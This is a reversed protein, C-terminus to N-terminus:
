ILFALACKIDDYSVRGGLAQHIGKLQYGDDVKYKQYVGEVADMVIKKPKYQSFNVEPNDKKLKILHGAITGKTMGRAKAIAELSHGQKFYMLSIAYTSEKEKKTNKRLRKKEALKAKNKEIEKPDTLGGCAKIFSYADDDLTKKSFRKEAELSLEQFRQDAKYALGDVKLAMENFGLLELNELSKLRSLAVYGQGLEFTKSLDISAAELTMGQSKHITIAWALRLPVQNISALTKGTDDIVAWTEPKAEIIKDDTTRVKPFGAESYDIIEGLSGNVYAREPNNKVFMVKAGIKLQLEEMALTSSKLAEVLKENGKGSARFKKQAGGLKELEIANMQDVDENHTYLRTPSINFKTQNNVAQQLLQLSEESLSRSRIQNLLKNLPNDSQRYQETLYCVQFNADLWSKAMFAFKDKSKEGQQGIPPLQYFDGSLVVQIGGFAESSKRFQQLVENVLDLQNKHLMSIEDLILVATEELHKKLYKKTKLTNIQSKSLQEKIGIGAWSHITMGDMHSAAIGTSATVAVPIKRAKLYQIYQQLVYTKGTGASGTLFINKGSKLLSLAQEQNM